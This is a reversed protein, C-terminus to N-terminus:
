PHGVAQQATHLVEGVNVELGANHGLEVVVCEAIHESM